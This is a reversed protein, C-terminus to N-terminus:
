KGSALAALIQKEMQDLRASWSNEQACKKRLESLYTPEQSSEDIAQFVEEQGECLNVINAYKDITTLNTAVIPKGTILCEFFKAPLVGRMHPKNAYPLLLVDADKIQGPIEEQPVAGVIETEESFGDLTVLVPGILRLRYRHSIERLLNVDLAIGISGFYVCLPPSLNAREYDVTSFLRLDVASPMLTADAKVKRVRDLNYDCDAWAIDVQELLDYEALQRRSHPDSTWDYVCRYVALDPNLYKQLAIAANLPLTHIMILPGNDERLDNIRKALRRVFLHENLFKGAVGVDPLTVSSVVKVGPPIRQRAVGAGHTKGLVRGLVRRYEKVRPWRKPLPEIFLIRYGLRALGEAVSNGTQWASHWHTNSVVVVTGKDTM